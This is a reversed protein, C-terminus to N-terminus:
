TKNTAGHWEPSRQTTKKFTVALVEDALDDLADMEARLRSVLLELQEREKARM